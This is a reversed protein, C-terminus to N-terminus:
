RAIRDTVDTLRYPHAKDPYIFSRDPLQGYATGFYADFIARFTNVLSMGPHVGAEAATKGPLHLALEIELKERLDDVSAHEWDYTEPHREYARPNPGEDTTVVIIPDTEGPGALAERVFSDVRGMTYRSQDIFLRQTTREARQEDTVFSGDQGFVYPDHPVLFHAFVFTRGPRDLTADLAAFGTLASQYQLQHPELDDDFPLGLLALRELIDPLMTTDLFATAFDSATELGLNVDAISSRATPDWWAGIHVYEFGREKLFRGAAHDDVLDYVPGFDNSSPGMQEALEDLYELNFMSALSHGTKGYNAHAGAVRDFGLEDLFAFPSEGELGWQERLIEESGIDEVVIVYIDRDPGASGEGPTPSPRPARPGATAAGLEGALIPVVAVVVLILGLINLRSTATALPRRVRWAAVLVIAGLVIWVLLLRGSTILRSDVAELVHGFSFFLIALGGTAIGARPIDRYLLTTLALVAGAGAVSALLPLAVDGPKAEGLNQGYLFLVAYAALLLPYFPLEALRPRTVTM